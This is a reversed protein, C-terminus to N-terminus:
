KLMQYLIRMSLGGGMLSGMCGQSCMPYWQNLCCRRLRTAENKMLQMKDVVGGHIFRGGLLPAIENIM